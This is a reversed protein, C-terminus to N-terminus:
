LTKSGAGPAAARCHPGHRGCGAGGELGWCSGANGQRGAGKLHGCRTGIPQGQNLEGGSAAKAYYDTITLELASRLEAARPFTYHAKTLSTMADVAQKRVFTM